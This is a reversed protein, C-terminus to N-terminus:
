QMGSFCTSLLDEDSAKDYVIQESAALAVCVIWREVCLSDALRRRTIAHFDAVRPGQISNGNLEISQAPTRARVRIPRTPAGERTFTRLRPIHAPVPVHATATLAHASIPLQIISLDQAALRAKTTVRDNGPAPQAQWQRARADSTFYCHYFCNTLYHILYHIM